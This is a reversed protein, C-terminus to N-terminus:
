CKMVNICLCVEEWWDTVYNKSYWSKAILYLQLRRGLGNRFEESLKEMEKYEDESLIPKLSLLHKQMTENLSPLPLRPLAGQFSHLQPQRRSIVHLIQFWLKTAASINKQRPNEYMWGKYSLVARIPLRFLKLM